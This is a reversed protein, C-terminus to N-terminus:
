KEEGELLYKKAKKLSELFNDSTDIYEMEYEDCLLKIKKSYQIMNDVHEKIDLDTLYILWDTEGALYKNCYEIKKTSEITCYGLFVVKIKDSYKKLLPSLLNPLMAEGDIIFDMENILLNDIFSKLFPWLKEAIVDPWLKDDIGSEPVGEMFAMMIIDLPLYSIGTELHIEQALKSKGSRSAGSILYIM